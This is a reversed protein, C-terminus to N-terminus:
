ILRYQYLFRFIVGCSACTCLWVGYLLINVLKVISNTTCYVKSPETLIVFNVTLDLSYVIENAPIECLLNLNKHRKRKSIYVVYRPQNM